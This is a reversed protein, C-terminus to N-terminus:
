RILRPSRASSGDPCWFTPVSDGGAWLNYPCPWIVTKTWTVGNDNSKMLFQDNWSNGCTFVLTNGVPEGWAYTDATIALYESSTIGPLQIWDAWTAGGDLSRTYLLAGDMGNYVVGGNGSPLTVAIVHIYTHDTGNTVMRPWWMTTVDAPIPITSETWSGSGKVPRTCFKIPQPPAQHALVIEGSLGFPQYSPWGTRTTEVRTAPETNWVSGNFYNYGTGRDSWAGGDEHSITAVAGLTGDPHMYIRQQGSSNNTQLDYKTMMTAPDDLVSKNSVHVNPPKIGIGETKSDVMCSSRKVAKAAKYRSSFNQAYGTFGSGFILLGLIMVPFTFKKM